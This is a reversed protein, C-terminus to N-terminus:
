NCLSFPSKNAFQGLQGLADSKTSVIKPKELVGLLSFKPFLALAIFLFDMSILYVNLLWIPFDITNTM